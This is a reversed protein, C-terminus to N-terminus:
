RSLFPLARELNITRFCVRRGPLRHTPLACSCCHACSCCSAGWRRFELHLNELKKGSRCETLSGRGNYPEVCSACYPPGNLTPSPKGTATEFHFTAPSSPLSSTLRANGIPPISKGMPRM